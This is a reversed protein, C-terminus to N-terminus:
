EVCGAHYVHGCGLRVCEETGLESTYCIGCLEDECGAEPAKSEEEDIGDVPIRVHIEGRPSEANIWTNAEDLYIKQEGAKVKVTDVSECDSEELTSLSKSSPLMVTRFKKLEIQPLDLAM